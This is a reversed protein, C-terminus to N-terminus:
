CHNTCSEWLAPPILTLTLVYSSKCRLLKFSSLGVLWFAKAYHKTNSIFHSLESEAHKLRHRNQTKVPCANSAKSANSARICNWQNATITIYLLEVPYSTSSFFVIKMVNSLLPRDSLKEDGLYVLFMHAFLLYTLTYTKLLM